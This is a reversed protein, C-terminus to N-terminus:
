DLERIAKGMEVFAERVQSKTVSLRKSMEMPTALGANIIQRFVSQLQRPVLNYKILLQEDDLGSKIDALINRASIKRRNTATAQKQQAIVDLATAKYFYFKQSFLGYKRRLATDNMGAKVDEVFEQARSSTHMGQRREM